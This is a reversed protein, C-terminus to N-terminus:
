PCLTTSVTAVVVLQQSVTHRGCRVRAGGMTRDRRGALLPHREARRPRGALPAKEPSVPSAGSYLFKDNACRVSAIRGKYSIIFTAGCYFYIIRM